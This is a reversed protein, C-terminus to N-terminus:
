GTITKTCISYMLRNQLYFVFYLFVGIFTRISYINGKNTYLGYFFLMTGLIIFIFGMVSLVLFLDCYYEKQLPSFLYNYIDKM